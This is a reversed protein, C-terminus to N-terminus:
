TICEKCVALELKLSLRPWLKVLLCSLTSPTMVKDYGIHPNLATVLMLSEHLLKDIREKNAEIGVVCNNVFAHSSDGLLRISRDVYVAYYLKCKIAPPQLIRIFGKGLFQM